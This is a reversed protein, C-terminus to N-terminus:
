GYCKIPKSTGKLACQGGKALYQQHYREAPWFTDAQVIESVIPKKFHVQQKAIEEEAEQKQQPSHYYIGSRYQSGVDNGQRNLQTPDHIELFVGVLERFAVNTPDFKVEVAETHGTRGTCVHEYTPDQVHGALYGVRTSVVGPLRQYALEVGWFCGAAFTAVETQTSSKGSSSIASARSLIQNQLQGPLKGGMINGM